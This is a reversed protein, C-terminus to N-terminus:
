SRDSWSYHVRDNGRNPYWCRNTKSNGIFTSRRYGDKPGYGVAVRQLTIITIYVHVLNLRALETLLDIDRFVLM